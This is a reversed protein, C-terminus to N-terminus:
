VPKTLYLKRKQEPWKEIAYRLMTRPMQGHYKQVFKEEIEMNRKGVERLMWGTAKHILPHTDKVLISAISLTEDFWGKKIFAYTAIIAIRREWVNESATLQFLLSCDKQFLYDGAISAASADVLDWNNIYKKCAIYFKFLKEKEKEGANAYKKILIFIATLRYEHIKNSLLKRLEPLPLNMYQAALKRQQPVTVGIFIDGEAYQGKGTKFFRSFNRAKEFNKKAQLAM